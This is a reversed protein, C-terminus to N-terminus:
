RSGGLRLSCGCFSPLPLSFSYPLHWEYVPALLSTPEGKSVEPISSHWPTKLFGKLEALLPQFLDCKCYGYWTSDLM